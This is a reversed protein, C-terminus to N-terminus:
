KPEEREQIDESREAQAVFPAALREGRPQWSPSELTRKALKEDHRRWM